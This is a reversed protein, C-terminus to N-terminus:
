QGPHERQHEIRGKGPCERQVPKPHITQCGNPQWGFQRGQQVGNNVHEDYVDRGVDQIPLSYEYSQLGVWEIM